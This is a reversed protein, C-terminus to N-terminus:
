KPNAANSRWAQILEDVGKQPMGGIQNLVIWVGGDTTISRNRYDAYFADLGDSLQSYAVNALLRKRFHLFSSTTTEFCSRDAKKLPKPLSAMAGVDIGDVFGAVYWQKVTSPVTIWWNGDHAVTQAAALGPLWVILLTGVIKKM